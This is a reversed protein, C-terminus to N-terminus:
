KWWEENLNDPEPPWEELEKKKKEEYFLMKGPYLPQSRFVTIVGTKDDVIKNMAEAISALPKDPTLGSNWDSGTTPDVFM